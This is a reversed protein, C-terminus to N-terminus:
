GKVRNFVPKIAVVHDLQNTVFNLYREFPFKKDPQAQTLSPKVYASIGKLSDHNLSEM